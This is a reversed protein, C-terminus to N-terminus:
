GIILDPFWLAIQPFIMVLIIALLMIALWPVISRYIDGMTVSPPAVSKLYFMSYGFPPTLYGMMIVMVYLVGFWVPDFGLSIAIPFFIPAGILILAAPELFMGLFLLIVQMGILIFWRNVELGSLEQLIFNTVGAGSYVAAFAAAGFTIWMIMATFTATRYSVEKIFQWNFRRYIAACLLAGAAGVAAAETPSAIGAFISGLVAVILLIPLIIARLSIFKERWTGRDELPLAPALGRQFFCRIGIYALFMVTLIAGPIMGGAFLRGVSINATTALIIMPVSPPILIGLPGAGVISGIALGKDYNRNLMAPLGILGMTVVAAAAVGAMAAFIASIVVTAMALGGRLPGSWLYLTRYLDEAVGSRELAVGMVVFLPIAMLTTMWMIGFTNFIIGMLADIGWLLMVAVVAIGGLAFALPLGLVLVVALSGFLLLTLLEISM